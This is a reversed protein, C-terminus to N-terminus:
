HFQLLAVPKCGFYFVKALGDSRVLETQFLCVDFAELVHLMRESESHEARKKTYSVDVAPQEWNSGCLTGM